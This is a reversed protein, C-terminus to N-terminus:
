RAANSYGVLMLNHGLDWCESKRFARRFVEDYWTQAQQRDQATAGLRNYLLIGGPNLHAQLLELFDPQLFPEPVQDDVFIDMCLLDFTDQCIQLFALADACHLELPSQLQPLTYRSALYLVNEDAEVGTYHYQRHYKVELLQPISGLGVGLLLVKRIPLKDLPLRQFAKDFNDYLDEWSYVANATCLQLRGRRLSVYLHPNLASPASELHLEVLWSLCRKWAPIHM